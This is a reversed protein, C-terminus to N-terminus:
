GVAIGATGGEGCRGGGVVAMLAVKDHRGDVKPGGIATVREREDAVRVADMHHALPLAPVGPHGVM